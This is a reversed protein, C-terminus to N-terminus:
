LLLLRMERLLEPSPAPQGAESPPRALVFREDFLPAEILSPESIPLAVVAVDLRRENLDEILTQTLTERLRLDLVPYAKTLIRILNPAFYPAVTPIVGITLRGDIQGSAARALDGLEDVSRLIDAVRGAAEEGFPTLRVRRGGREILPAGLIEELEKIQMSLAPQSIACEDAARGFHSHRALAAFYRYQRLTASIM